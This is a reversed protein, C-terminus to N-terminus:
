GRRVEAAGVLPVRLSVLAPLPTVDKNRLSSMYWMVVLLLVVLVLVPPLPVVVLM